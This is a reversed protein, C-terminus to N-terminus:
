ARKVPLMGPTQGCISSHFSVDHLQLVFHSHEGATAAPNTKCGRAFENGFARLDEDCAAPLRLKVL